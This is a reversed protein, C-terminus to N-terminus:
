GLPRPVGVARCVRAGLVECRGRVDVGPAGLAQLRLCDSRNTECGNRHTHTASQTRVYMDPEALAQNVVAIGEESTHEEKERIHAAVREGKTGSAQKSSGGKGGKGASSSAAAQAQVAEDKHQLLPKGDASATSVWYQTGGRSFAVRPKNFSVFEDNKICIEENQYVIGRKSVCNSSQLVFNM